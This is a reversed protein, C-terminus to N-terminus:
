LDTLERIFVARATNPPPLFKASVAFGRMWVIGQFVAGPKRREAALDRDPYAHEGVVVSSSEFLNSNDVVAVPWLKKQTGIAHRSSLLEKVKREQRTHAPWYRDGPRWNRIVLHSPVLAPNLLSDRYLDQVTATDVFRAEIRIGLESIFVTGPISLMYEYGSALADAPSHARHVLECDLRLHYSTRRVMVGSALELKKGAPENALELAQEIIRFSVPFNPTAVELWARLLRRQVALPLSLLPQLPLCAAESDSRSNLNSHSDDLSGETFQAQSFQAEPHTSWHDDEARAIEALDALHEIASDGFDALIAPILRHRVRNRLFLTDQNSADERWPQNRERLYVHLDARRFSLLPRIVEGCVANKACTDPAVVKNKPDKLGKEEHDKDDFLIRPHIAALGRIGTGRFIRLLVTEAQDDLTHATAIKSIRQDRALQRFFHYRLGRAAAEIGSTASHFDTTIPPDYKNHAAIPAECLHFELGHKRALDAVFRQDTDSDAGRLKHNVHALSLVFGIEARLDLLLHLLAVSDAGGSVAAAVRDGARIFRHRQIAKLLKESLSDV